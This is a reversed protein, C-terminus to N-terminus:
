ASTHGSIDRDYLDHRPTAATAPPEAASADARPVEGGRASTRPMTMILLPGIFASAPTIFACLNASIKERLLSIRAQLQERSGIMLGRAPSAMLRM